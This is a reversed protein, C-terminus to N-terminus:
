GLARSERAERFKYRDWAHGRCAWPGRACRRGPRSLSLQRDFSGIGAMSVAHPSLRLNPIRTASLTTRLVLLLTWLKAAKLVLLLQGSGRPRSICPATADNRL